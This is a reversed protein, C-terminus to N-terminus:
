RVGGQRCRPTVACDSQTPRFILRQRGDPDDILALHYGPLPQRQVIARLEFRFRRLPSLSGSKLHLHPLDFSWGHTQRGGHKRVLRYLWRELRRDPHFYARDITLILADDLVGAYFWDPLILEIGLPRRDRRAAREM